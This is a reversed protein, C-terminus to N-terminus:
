FPFSIHYHPSSSPTLLLPASSILLSLPLPIAPLLRLLRDDTTPLPQITPSPFSASCWCSYRSHSAGTVLQWDGIIVAGVPSSKSCHPFPGLVCRVCLLSTAANTVVPVQVALRRQTLCWMSCQSWQVMVASHHVSDLKRPAESSAM